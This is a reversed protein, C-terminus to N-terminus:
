FDTVTSNTFAVKPKESFRKRTTYIPEDHIKEKKVKLIYKTKTRKQELLIGRILDIPLVKYYKM